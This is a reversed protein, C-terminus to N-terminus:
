GPFSAGEADGSVVAPTVEVGQQRFPPKTPRHADCHAITFCGGLPM